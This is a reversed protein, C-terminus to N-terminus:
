NLPVRDHQLSPSVKEQKLTEMKEMAVSSKIHSFCITAQKLNFNKCSQRLRWPGKVKIGDRQKFWKMQKRLKVMLQM